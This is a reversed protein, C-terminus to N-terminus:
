LQGEVPLRPPAQPTLASAPAPGVTLEFPTGAAGQDTPDGPIRLRLRFTGQANFAHVISFPAAEGAHAATGVTGVDAVHWGLHLSNQRELYVVHGSLAPLVTGSFTLPQGVQAPGSPPTATLVYRVGEFAIASHESSTSARYFMSASPTQTFEYSGGSGTHTTAIPAFPAQKAHAFLTVLTGSPAGAVVGKLKTSQGFSIPNQESELTFGLRQTQSIEYSAPTSAAPANIGTPHVVVRINADGPLAFNHEIVYRGGPGVTGFQIAHWEENGTSNERQLALHAGADIAPVTGAFTVTRAGRHGASTFLPTGDPPTPPVPTVQTQVRVRRHASQAGEATAYLISDTEFTPPTVEFAGGGESTATGVSVFGPKPASQEYMTVLQGKEQEVNSCIVHGVITAKEGFAIPTSPVEIRIRCPRNAHSHVRVGGSPRALAGAPAIALASAAAAAVLAFRTSRM